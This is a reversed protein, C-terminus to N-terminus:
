LLDEQQASELCKSNVKTVITVNTRDNLFLWKLSETNWRPLPNDAKTASQEIEM